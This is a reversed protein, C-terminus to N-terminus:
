TMTICIGRWEHAATIAMILIDKLMPAQELRDVRLLPVLGTAGVNEVITTSLIRSSMSFGM